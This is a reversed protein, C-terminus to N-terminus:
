AYVAPARDHACPAARLRRRRGARRLQAAQRARRARQARAVPHATARGPTALVATRSRRQLSDPEDSRVQGDAPPRYRGGRRRRRESGRAADVPVPDPLADSPRLARGRRGARRPRHAARAAPAEGAPGCVDFAAVARARSAGTRAAAARVGPPRRRDLVRPEQARHRRRYRAARDRRDRQRSQAGARGHGHVGGQVGPPDDARARGARRDRRQRAPARPGGAGDHLVRLRGCLRGADLRVPRRGAAARVRRDPRRRARGAAADFRRRRNARFAAAGLRWARRRDGRPRAAAVDPLGLRPWAIRRRAAVCADLRAARAARPM